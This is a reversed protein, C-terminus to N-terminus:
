VEACDPSIVRWRPKPFNSHDCVIKPVLTQKRPNLLAYAESSTPETMIVENVERDHKQTVRDPSFTRQLCEVLSHKRKGVREHCQESSVGQGNTRRQAAKKGLKRLSGDLRQSRHKEFVQECRRQLLLLFCSPQPVSSSGMPEHEINIARSLGGALSGQGTCRIEWGCVASQVLDTGRAICSALTPLSDPGPPLKVSPYVLKAGFPLFKIQLMPISWSSAPFVAGSASRQAGNKDIRFSPRFHTECLFM